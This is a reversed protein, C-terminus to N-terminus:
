PTQKKAKLEDLLSELTSVESAAMVKSKNGKLLIGMLKKKYAAKESEDILEKILRWIEIITKILAPFNLIFQLILLWM